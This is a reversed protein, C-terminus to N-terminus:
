EPFLEEAPVPQWKTPDTKPIKLQHHAYPLMDPKDQVDKVDAVTVFVFKGEAMLAKKLSDRKEQYAKVYVVLSKYGGEIVKAYVYILDGLYTPKHWTFDAIKYTVAGKCTPSAVLLRKVCMAAAIDAKAFSAGGFVMPLMYNCDEPMITWNSQFELNLPQENM